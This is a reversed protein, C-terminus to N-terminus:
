KKKKQTSKKNTSKLASDFSESIEDSSLVEIHEKKAKPSKAPEESIEQPKSLENHETEKLIGSQVIQTPESKKIQKKVTKIKEEITKAIEEVNEGCQAALRTLLLSSAVNLRPKKRLFKRLPRGRRPHPSARQLFDRFWPNRAANEKTSEKRQHFSLVFM